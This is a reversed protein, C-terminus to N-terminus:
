RMLSLSCSSVKCQEELEQITITKSDLQQQISFSSSSSFSLFSFSSFSASSSSSIFKNIKYRELQSERLEAQQKMEKGEKRAEELEQVLATINSASQGTASEQEKAQSLLYLPLASLPWM